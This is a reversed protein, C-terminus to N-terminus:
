YGGAMCNYWQYGVTQSGTVDLGHAVRGIAAALYVTIWRRCVVRKKERGRGASVFGPTCQRLSLPLPRREGLTNCACMCVQETKDAKGLKSHGPVRENGRKVLWLVCKLVGVM